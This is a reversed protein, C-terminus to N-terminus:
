NPGLFAKWTLGEALAPDLGRSLLLAEWYCILPHFLRFTLFAQHAWLQRVQHAFVPLVAHGRAARPSLCLSPPFPPWPAAWAGRCVKSGMSSLAFLRCSCPFLSINVTLHKLHAMRCKSSSFGLIQPAFVRTWTGVWAQSWLHIRYTQNTGWVSEM